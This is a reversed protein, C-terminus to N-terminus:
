FKIDFIITYFIKKETKIFNPVSYPQTFQLNWRCNYCYLLDEYIKITIECFSRNVWILKGAFACQRILGCTEYSICM